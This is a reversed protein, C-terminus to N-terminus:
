ERIVFGGFDASDGFFFKLTKEGRNITKGSLRLFTLGTGTLTDTFPLTQINQIKPGNLITGRNDNQVGRLNIGRFQFRGDSTLGTNSLYTALGFYGFVAMFDEKNGNTGFAAEIINDLGVRNTNLLRQILEAGSAAVTLDGFEAQEYLYRMFLYIGGREELNTGCIFCVNAINGLYSAVRAPNELGAQTMYNNEDASYIDEILHSMGENLWAKEASGGNVFVHRNFSIMHQLEHVLVGPYINTMAFSKSVAPGVNGTPDPIFTYLIESENSIPYTNSSFLDIAYFFGTVIGGSTAGLENVTQTFLVKFKGDGDVDSETGLLDRALPLVVSFSEALKKLDNDTLADANRNDVYFQFDPYNLRLTATVLDYSSPSSFSNLVKFTKESGIQAYRSWSAGAGYSDLAANRELGSEYERLLFHLDGTVDDDGADGSLFAASELSHTEGSTNAMQFGTATASENFAYLMVLVEENDALDTFVVQSSGGDVALNSINGGIPAGSGSSPISSDSTALSGSGSGCYIQVLAVSIVVLYKLLDTKRM